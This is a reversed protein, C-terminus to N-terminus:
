KSPTRDLEYRYRVWSRQDTARSIGKPPPLLELELTLQTAVKQSGIEGPRFITTLFATSIAAKIEEPTSSNLHEVAIVRGTESIYLRIVLKGSWESDFEESIEPDTIPAPALTLMSRRYFLKPTSQSSVEIDSGPAASAVIPQQSATSEPQQADIPQPPAITPASASDYSSNDGNSIVVFLKSRSDGKAGQNPPRNLDIPVALLHLFVSVAFAAALRQNSTSFQPPALHPLAAEWHLQRNLKLGLRVLWKVTQRYERATHRHQRIRSRFVSIRYDPYNRPNTFDHRM